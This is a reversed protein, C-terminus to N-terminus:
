RIDLIESYETFCADSLFTSWQNYFMKTQSCESDEGKQYFQFTLRTGSELYVYVRFCDEDDTMVVFNHHFKESGLRASIYFAIFRMKHQHEYGILINNFCEKHMGCLDGILKSNFYLNNVNM